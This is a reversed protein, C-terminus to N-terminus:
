FVYSVADVATPIVPLGLGALASTRSSAVETAKRYLEPAYNDEIGGVIGSFGMFSLNRLAIVVRVNRVTM